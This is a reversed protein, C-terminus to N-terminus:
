DDYVAIVYVGDKWLFVLESATRQATAELSGFGAPEYCWPLKKCSVFCLRRQYLSCVQQKACLQSPLKLLAGEPPIGLAEIFPESFGNLVHNFASRPVRSICKELITGRLKEWDHEWKGDTGETVALIDLLGKERTAVKLRRPM